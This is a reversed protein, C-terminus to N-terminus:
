VQVSGAPASVGVSLTAGTGDVSGASAKGAIVTVVGTAMRGLVAGGDSSSGAGAGQTGIVAVPGVVNASNTTVTGAPATVSGRTASQGPADAAPQMVLGSGTDYSFILADVRYTHRWEVGRRPPGKREPKFGTIRVVLLEDLDTLIRVKERKRAWLMLAEYHQQSRIVGSFSWQVPQRKSRMGTFGSASDLFWSLAQERLPSEAQNPNIPVIYSSLGDLTTFTWRHM